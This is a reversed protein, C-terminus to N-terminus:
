QFLQEFTKFSSFYDVMTQVSRDVIERMQLNMLNGAGFKLERKYEKFLSDYGNTQLDVPVSFRKAFSQYAVSERVDILDEIPTAEHLDDESELPDAAAYPISDM